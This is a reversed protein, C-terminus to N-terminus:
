RHAKWKSDRFLAQVEQLAARAGQRVQPSIELSAFEDEDLVIQRGDPFVLIDLALDIYSLRDGELEAPLAINVYWGKLHDDDRAHIEFINYWRDTYYTEIFRDGTLLPMGHYVTDQNNFFAQLTVRTGNKELIQGGYQWTVQGQPNRKLDTIQSTEASEVTM